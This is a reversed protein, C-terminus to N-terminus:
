PRVFRLYSTRGDPLGAARRAAAEENLVRALYVREFELLQEPTWSKAGRDKITYELIAQPAKGLIVAQIADLAKRAHSRTDVADGETPDALITILNSVLRGDALAVADLTHREGTMSVQAIVSYEGADWDASETTTITTLYDAGDATAEIEIATGSSRPRLIHTLTWGDTAPYDDVTTTFSYSDGVTLTQYM